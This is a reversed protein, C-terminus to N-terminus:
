EKAWEILRRIQRWLWPGLGQVLGLALVILLLYLAWWLDYGYLFGAFGTYERGDIGVNAPYVSACVRLVILGIAASAVMLRAGLERPSM